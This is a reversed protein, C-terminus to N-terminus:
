WDPACLINFVEGGDYRFRGARSLRREEVWKSFSSIDVVRM